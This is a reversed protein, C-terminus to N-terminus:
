LAFNTAAMRESFSFVALAVRFDLVASTASAPTRRCSIEASLSLASATFSDPRLYLPLGVAIRGALAVDGFAAVADGFPAEAEVTDEGIKFFSRM